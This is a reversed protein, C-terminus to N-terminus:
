SVIKRVLAESAERVRQDTDARAMWGMARTTWADADPHEPTIHHTIVTLADALVFPHLQDADCRDLTDLIGHVVEMTPDHSGYTHRLYAQATLDLANGVTLPHV